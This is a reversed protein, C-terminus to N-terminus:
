SAGFKNRIQERIEPFCHPGVQQVLRLADGEFLPEIADYLTQFNDHRRRIQGTLSHFENTEWLLPFRSACFSWFLIDTQEPQSGPTCSGGFTSPIPAHGDREM